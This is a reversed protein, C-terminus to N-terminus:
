KNSRRDTKEILGYAILLNGPQINSEGENWGTWYSIKAPSYDIDCFPIAIVDNICCFSKIIESLKLFGDAWCSFIFYPM